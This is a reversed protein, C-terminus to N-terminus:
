RKILDKLYTKCAVLRKIIMVQHAFNYELKKEHQMLNNMHQM